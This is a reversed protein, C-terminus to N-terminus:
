KKETSIGLLRYILCFGSAATFLVAVGILAVALGLVTNQMGGLPGMGFIALILGLIARIARDVTGVNPEPM